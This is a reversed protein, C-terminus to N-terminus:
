IQSDNAAWVLQLGRTTGEAGPCSHEFVENVSIFSENKLISAKRELAKLFNKWKAM